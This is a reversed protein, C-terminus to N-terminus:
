SNTKPKPPVTSSTIGTIASSASVDSSQLSEALKYQHMTGMYQSLQDTYQKMASELGKLSNSFDTKANNLVKQAAQVASTQDSTLQGNSAQLGAVEAAHQVATLEAQDIASAQNNAGKTLSNVIDTISNVKKTITNLTWGGQGHQSADSNTDPLMQFKTHFSYANVNATTIDQAATLASKKSQDVLKEYDKTYTLLNYVFDYMNAATEEDAAHNLMAGQAGQEFLDAFVSDLASGVKKKLEQNNSNGSDDSLESLLSTTLMGRLNSLFTESGAKPFIGSSDIADSLNITLQDLMNKTLTKSPTIGALASKITSKITQELFSVEAQQLHKKETSTAPKLVQNLAATLTSEVKARDPNKKTNNSSGSGGSKGKDKSDDSGGSTDNPAPFAASLVPDFADMFDQTTPYKIPPPSGNLGTNRANVLGEMKTIEPLLGSEQTLQKNASDQLSKVLLDVQNNFDEMAKISSPDKVDFTPTPM